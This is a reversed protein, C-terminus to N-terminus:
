KEDEIRVLREGASSAYMAEIVMNAKLGDDGNGVPERQEEVAATFEKWERDWSIDLKPFNFVEIEPRGGEKRRRGYELTEPGYSGGLGSAKLYGDRGHVEFSFINKWNTWSVHFQASVGTDTGLIAMANDEVEIDWFSTEVRGYVDTVEGGFWRILDIVHVGQDLLEGGGCLRPSSRWEREMGPRGGHGYRARINMCEGIAGIDLLQKARWIAPHFRHNFGTKLVVSAASGNRSAIIQRSEVASRGLPKECLVHRGSALAANAIPLLHGNYVAVVVIDVDDRDLVARWDKEVGAGFESSLARARETDLDSVAVLRSGEARGIAAARKKGILGAGIIAVNHDM